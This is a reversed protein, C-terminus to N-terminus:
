GSKQKTQIDIDGDLNRTSTGALAAVLALGNLCGLSAFLAVWGHEPLIEMVYAAGRPIIYTSATAIMNGVGMLIGQHTTTVDLYNSKFGFGHAALAASNACLFFGVVLPSQFPKGHVYALGWASAMMGVFGIAAFLKRSFLLRNENKQDNKNDNKDDEDDGDNRDSALVAREVLRWGMSFLIGVVHTASMFVSVQELSLGMQSDFYSPMWAVLFYKAGNFSFHQLIVAVVPASLWFALPPLAHPAAPPTDAKSKAKSNAKSTHAKPRSEALAVWAITCVLTFAGIVM